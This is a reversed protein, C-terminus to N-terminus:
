PLLSVIEQELKCNHELMYKLIDVYCNKKILNEAKVRDNENLPKCYKRYAELQIIGMYVPAIDIGTGKKLHELIYFGDPDIDGFHLWKKDPNEDALRKILSQKETNHYGALYIYTNGSDNVRHFSTLNEVTVIRNSEVAISAIERILESSLAMPAKGIKLYEGDKLRVCVKGKLYIYSPNTFVHFEELIVKERERDNDIGELKDEFDMYGRLIKCIKSRYKLEFDKSDSLVMMSLERELLEERNNMLYCLLRFIKESVEMTFSAKRGSSIRELQERCYSSVLSNGSKSWNHYFNMEEQKEDKKSRRQLIDYYESIRANCAALRSIEGRRREITLLGQKELYEMDAEFDKIERVDAFDSTYKEWIDTPKAAFSQSVLNTGEYTKSREYKDLLLNLIKKQAPTLNM